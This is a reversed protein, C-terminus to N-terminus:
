INNISIKMDLFMSILMDNIFFIEEKNKALGVLTLAGSLGLATIAENAANLQGKGGDIIILQPFDAGEDIIRKYRRYVVEKMSAFDDIGEVTKIHFKRYDSKSPLGNKFCVMGAVPSSGQINSNDFCEIHLPLTNLQLEEQLSILLDTSDKEHNTIGLREKRERQEYTWKYHKLNKIALELLKLKEGAKPVTISRFLM